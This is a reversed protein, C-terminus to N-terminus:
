DAAHVIGDAVGSVADGHGRILALLDRLQHRAILGLVGEEANWERARREAQVVALRPKQGERSHPVLKQIPHASFGRLRPLQIPPCCGSPTRYQERVVSTFIIGAPYMAFRM